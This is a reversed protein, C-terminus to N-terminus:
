SKAKLTSLSTSKTLSFIALNKLALFISITKVLPQEILIFRTAKPYPKLYKFFSLIFESSRQAEICHIDTRMINQLYFSLGEDPKGLLIKALCVLEILMINENDSVGEDFLGQKGIESLRAFRDDEKIGDFLGYLSLYLKNPMDGQTIVSYLKDRFLECIEPKMSDLQALRDNEIIELLRNMALDLSHKNNANELLLRLEDM